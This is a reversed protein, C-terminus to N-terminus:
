LSIFLQINNEKEVIRWVKTLNYYDYNVTKWNIILMDGMVSFKAKGVDWRLRDAAVLSFSYFFGGSLIFYIM